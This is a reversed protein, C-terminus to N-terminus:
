PFREEVIARDFTQGVTQLFPRGLQLICGKEFAVRSLCYLPEEPLM